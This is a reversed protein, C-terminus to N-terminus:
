VRLDEDSDDAQHRDRIPDVITQVFEDVQQASRGVFADPDMLGDIDVGSFEKDQKLMDLLDNPKGELKVHAGAEQSYQRIKEHLQQRDGGLEVAAMMINETAMFPLEERLHKQLMKPYVVMGSAVNSMLILISDIALFAQPMVLRRNASDDLTRELWQTALTNAPSSQLSIVFRALSCIRESRMPNRKYAMASSGIQHKEFPEEIEKRNALIRIDTAIKHLSQAVGSLADVIHVDIKRPYTQGTVAYSSDFGIKSSVLQDLERVKDHDGDFLKLFSAQTGTTGKTGRAKLNSTRFELTHLDDVLDQIWLCARKGVTTPQAPQLHTFGLCSVSKQEQAFKTLRFITTALRRMVIQLAERFLILDTNDTVFCSTAGLHIIGAADPCADAFTHVHAMVDHRLKKEYKKAASFDISNLNEQMQALQQDTIALGLQQQSEALALWLQRWTRFKKEAGFVKSMEESAYRSILPNDYFETTM